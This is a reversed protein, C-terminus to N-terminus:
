YLLRVPELIVQDAVEDSTELDRFSVTVQADAGVLGILDSIEYGGNDSGALLAGAAVPAPDDMDGVIKINIEQKPM